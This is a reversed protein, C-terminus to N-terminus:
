KIIDDLAVTLVEDFSSGGNYWKLEFDIFGPNMEDFEAEAIDEYADIDEKNVVKYLHKEGSNTTYILYERYFGNEFDYVIEEESHEDCYAYGKENELLRKLMQNFSEGEKEYIRQITGKIHETESM